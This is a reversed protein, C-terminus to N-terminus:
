PSGTSAIHSGLRKQWRLANAALEEPDARCVWNEHKLCTWGLGEFRWRSGIVLDADYLVEEGSEISRRSLWISALLLHAAVGRRPDQLVRLLEDTAPKGILLLQAAAGEGCDMHLEVRGWNNHGVCEWDLKSVLDPIRQLDRASVRSTSTCGLWPFTGLILPFAIM